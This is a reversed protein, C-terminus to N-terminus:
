KKFQTIYEGFRRFDVVNSPDSYRHIMRHCNPCLAVAINITDPCGAAREVKNDMALRYLIDMLLEFDIQNDRTIEDM